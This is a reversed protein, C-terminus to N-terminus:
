SLPPLFTVANGKLKDGGKWYSNAPVLSAALLGPERPGPLTDGGPATVASANASAGFVQKWELGFRVKKQGRKWGQRKKGLTM